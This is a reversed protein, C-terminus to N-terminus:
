SHSALCFEHERHRPHAGEGTGMALAKGRHGEPSHGSAEGEAVKGPTRRGQLPARSFAAIPRYAARGGQRALALSQYAGDCPAVKM